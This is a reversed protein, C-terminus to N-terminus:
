ESVQVPIGYKELRAAIERLTEGSVKRLTDTPTSRAIAYIMTQSPRIAGVANEWADL